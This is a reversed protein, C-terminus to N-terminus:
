EHPRKNFWGGPRAEPGVAPAPKEETQSEPSEATVPASEAVVETQTETQEASEEAAPEPSDDAPSAPEGKVEEEVIEETIADPKLQEPQEDTAVPPLEPKKAVKEYFRAIAAYDLDAWGENIAAYLSGATATTAPIDIDCSNAVQIALQVDKFMHKVSFNTEYDREIIRPLKMDLLGCRVGHHELAKVLAQPDVGSGKVVACAEALTQVLVAALMNTAVKVTAAHGIEGIRVVAKSAAKLVPEVTRFSDDDSGVFYVLEGKESAGKSGTFPADVFKAGCAEVMRAAEVTADAGVTASCIFTHRSSLVDGLADIIAFLAVADAVFVQIIDCIGAVEAPSALFNPAPKPTRNWVYVQFGAKRLNTAVRSGIIGLGIVGVNLKNKRAM